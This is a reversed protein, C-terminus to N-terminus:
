MHAASQLCGGCLGGSGPDDALDAGCRSCEGDEDELLDYGAYDEFKARLWAIQGRLMAEVDDDSCGELTHDLASWLTDRRELLGPLGSCMQADRSLKM